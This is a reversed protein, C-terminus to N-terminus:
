HTPNSGTRNLIDNPAAQTAMLLEGGGGWGIEKRYGFIETVLAELTPNFRFRTKEKERFAFIM